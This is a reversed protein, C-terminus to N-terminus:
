CSRSVYGRTGRPVVDRDRLLVSIRAGRAACAASFRAADYEIEIVHDAYPGTYADCEQYAQCEEAVAFDFGLAPGRRGLEATNKQGIALGAAHARAILARAFALNDRQTLAGHSRAYSDLNDPEVAQYGRAACGDIWAGVIQTLARRKAATSTDLLLEDWAGDVVLRGDHRLLLDPHERKWWRAADPQTQVANVYCVGYAGPAPAVTRDRTVIDTGPAPDYPGGLQYDPTGNVPPPEVAAHAAAPLVLALLVALVIRSM